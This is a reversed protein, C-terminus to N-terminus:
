MLKQGDSNEPLGDMRKTDEEAGSDGQKPFVGGSKEQGKLVLDIATSYYEIENKLWELRMKAFYVKKRSIAKVGDSWNQVVLGKEQKAIQDVQVELEAKYVELLSAGETLAQEDGNNIAKFWIGSQEDIWQKDPDVIIEPKISAEIKKEAISGLAGATGAAVAGGLISGLFGRRSPKVLNGNKKEEEPLLPAGEM